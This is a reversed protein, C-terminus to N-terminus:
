QKQLHLSATKQVIFSGMTVQVTFFIKRRAYESLKIKLTLLHLYM